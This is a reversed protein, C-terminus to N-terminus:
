VSCMQKIDHKWVEQLAHLSFTCLAGAHHQTCLAGAQCPTCFAGAHHQTCLAGCEFSLWSPRPHLTCWMLLAVMLAECGAFSGLFCWYSWPEHHHLYAGHLLLAGHFALVWLVLALSSTPQCWAIAFSWLLCGYSWSLIINLVMCYCAGLFCGYSWPELHHLCWYMELLARFAPFPLFVFELFCVGWTEPNPTIYSQLWLKPLGIKLRWIGLIHASPNQLGLAELAWGELGDTSGVGSLSPM